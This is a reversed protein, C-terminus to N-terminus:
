NQAAFIEKWKEFLENKEKSERRYTELYRGVSASGSDLCEHLNKWNPYLAKAQNVFDMPYSLM